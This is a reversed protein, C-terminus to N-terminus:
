MNKYVYEIANLIIKEDEPNEKLRELMNKTFIGKLTDQKAIEELNYELRTNDIIETVYNPLESISEELKRIDIYRIGTFILRYIDEKLQLNDLIEQITQNNSIDIEKIVFKQPDLTKFETTLKKDKIEGIVLGHEGLEDFGGAVLSGPYIINSDDVKPLHIHGLAVYDFKKLSKSKIDNYQHSAGDLNGHTILINTKQEDIEIEDVINKDFEYDDFGFGYIRVGAVEFMGVDAGFIYVNDPWDYTNYPSNKILPDHNGPTIFVKINSIERLCSIIYKITEDEVYKNEFLDGAIFIADVCEAKALEIASKFVQKQNIRRKKVLDRNSKISSFVMDFHVDAFHIFKM